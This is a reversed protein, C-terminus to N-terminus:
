PAYPAEEDTPPHAGPEKEGPEHPSHAERYPRGTEYGRLREELSPILGEAGTKFLVPPPACDLGFVLVKRSKNRRFLKLM